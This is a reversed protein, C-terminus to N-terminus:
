PSFGCWMTSASNLANARAASAADRTSGRVPPATGDVFPVSLAHDGDDVAARPVEPGDFFREGAGAARRGHGAGGRPHAARIADDDRPLPRKAVADRAQAAAPEVGRHALDDGRPPRVEADAEPQLDQELGALLVPWAGPEADEGPADDAERRRRPALHR